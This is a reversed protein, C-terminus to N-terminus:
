IHNIDILEEKSSANYWNYQEKLETKSANEVFFYLAKELLDRNRM